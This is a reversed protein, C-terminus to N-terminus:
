AFEYPPRGINGLVRLIATTRPRRAKGAAACVGDPSILPVTVSVLAATRGPTLIVSVLTAVL